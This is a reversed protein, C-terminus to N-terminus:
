QKQDMQIRRGTAVRNHVSVETISDKKDWKLKWLLQDLHLMTDQGGRDNCKNKEKNDTKEM